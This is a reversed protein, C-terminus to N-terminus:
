NGNKMENYLHVLKCIHFRPFKRKGLTIQFFESYNIELMKAVKTKNNGYFEILADLMRKCEIQVEEPSLKDTIM